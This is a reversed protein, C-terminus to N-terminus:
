RGAHLIESLSQGEIYAMTLYHIGEIRGVDHIPCLNPHHIMAAARAERLFRACVGPGDAATFRPVKLAVRHDLMRDHALYVAGMGGGGLRRLVQYRGFQEPPAAGDRTTPGPADQAAAPLLMADPQTAEAFVAGILDAHGPFRLRYEEPAPSE